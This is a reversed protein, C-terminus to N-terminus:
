ASQQSIGQQVRASFGSNEALMWRTSLANYPLLYSPSKLKKEYKQM